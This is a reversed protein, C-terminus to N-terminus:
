YDLPTDHGLVLSMDGLDLDCHVCVWFRSGPWLEKSWIPDPYKVSNSDTVWSDVKVKVWPLIKLILTVTCVYGFDTDPCYSRVEM